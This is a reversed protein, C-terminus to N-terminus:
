IWMAWSPLSLLLGAYTYNIDYMERLFPMLNGMLVSSAGSTFFVFLTAMMLRNERKENTIEM